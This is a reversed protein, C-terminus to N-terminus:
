SLGHIGSMILHERESISTCVLVYVSLSFTGLGKVVGVKTILSIYIKLANCLCHAVSQVTHSDRILM